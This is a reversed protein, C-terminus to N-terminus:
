YINNAFYRASIRAYTGDAVLEELARNFRDRLAADDARLAIGAGEGFWAPDGYGSGALRCCTGEDAATWRLLANRDAFLLDAEGGALAAQAE